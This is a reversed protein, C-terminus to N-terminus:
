DRERPQFVVQRACHETTLHAPSSLRQGVFTDCIEAHLAQRRSRALIESENRASQSSPLVIRMGRKPVSDPPSSRLALVPRLLLAHLRTTNATSAPRSIVEALEACTPLAPVSCSDDVHDAVASCLAVDDRACIGLREFGCSWDRNILVRRIASAAAALGDGAHLCGHPDSARMCMEESRMDAKLPAFAYVDLAQLLWTLKAPVLVCLIGLAALHRLFETSLHCTSCDMLLLIFADDNWSHVVSRLRTAWAKLVHVTAVGGTGHWFELPFGHDRLRTTVHLPPVANQTYKPLIVQPLLPQLHFNPSITALFTVKVHMRDVPDCPRSARCRADALSGAIMGHGRHRVSTLCTEDMNIIVHPRDRLVVDLLYRLWRFYIRVQPVVLYCSVSNSSVYFTTFTNEHLVCGFAILFSLSFRRTYHPPCPPFTFFAGMSAM